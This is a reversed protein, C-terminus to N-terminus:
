VMTKYVPPRISLFFLYCNHLGYIRGKVCNSIVNFGLVNPFITSLIVVVVAAAAAAAATIQKNDTVHEM